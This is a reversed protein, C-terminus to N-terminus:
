KQDEFQNKFVDEYHEAKDSEGLYECVAAMVIPTVQANQSVGVEKKLDEVLVSDLKLNKKGTNSENGTQVNKVNDLAM